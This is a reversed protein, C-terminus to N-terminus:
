KLKKVPWVDLLRPIGEKFGYEFWKTTPYDPYKPDLPPFPGVAGTAPQSGAEFLMTTSIALKAGNPWFKGPLERSITHKSTMFEGKSCEM